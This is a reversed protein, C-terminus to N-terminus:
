YFRILIFINLKNWYRNNPTSHWLFFVWLEQVNKDQNSEILSILKKLKSPPNKASNRRQAFWGIKVLYIYSSGYSFIKRISSSPKKLENQKCAISLALYDTISQNELMYCLINDQDNFGFERADKPSVTPKILLKLLPFLWSSVLVKYLSKLVDNM